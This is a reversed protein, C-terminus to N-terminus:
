VNKHLVTQQWKQKHVTRIKKLQTPKNNSMKIKSKCTSVVVQLQYVLKVTVNKEVIKIRLAEPWPDGLDSDQAEQCFYYFWAQYLM